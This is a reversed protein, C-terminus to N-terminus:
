RKKQEAKRQEEKIEEDGMFDSIEMDQKRYVLAKGNVLTSDWQLLSLATERLDEEIAGIDVLRSHM